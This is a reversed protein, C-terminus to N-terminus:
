SNDYVQIKKKLSDIAHEFFQVDDHYPINFQFEGQYYCKVNMIHDIQDEIEVHLSVAGKIILFYDSKAFRVYTIKFSDKKFETEIIEKKTM